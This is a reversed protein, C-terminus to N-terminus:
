TNPLRAAIKQEIREILGAMQLLQLVLKGPETLVYFGPFQPDPAYVLGKDELVRGSVCSADPVGMLRYIDRNRYHRGPEDHEREAISLLKIIQSRSLQLNFAVSTVHAAFKHNIETMATAAHKAFDENSEPTPM